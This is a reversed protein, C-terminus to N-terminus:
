SKANKLIYRTGAYYKYVIFYALVVFNQNTDLQVNLTLLLLILAGSSSVGTIWLTSLFIFLVVVGKDLLFGGFGAFFDYKYSLTKSFVSHIEDTGDVGLLLQDLEVSFLSPYAAFRHLFSIHLEDLLYGSYNRWFFMLFLTFGLFIFTFPIKNIHKKLKEIIFLPFLLVSM